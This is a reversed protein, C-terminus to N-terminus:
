DVLVRKLKGEEHVRFVLITAGEGKTIATHVRKLPVQIVDGKNGIIDDKPNEAIRTYATV